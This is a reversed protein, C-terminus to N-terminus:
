APHPRAHFALIQEWAELPTEAYTFLDLHADSIV